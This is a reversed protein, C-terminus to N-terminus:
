MAGAKKLTEKMKSELHSIMEAKEETFATATATEVRPDIHQNSREGIALRYVLAAQPSFGAKAIEAYGSQKVRPGDKPISEKVAFGLMGLARSWGNKLSGVARLRKSILTKALSDIETNFLPKEGRKIRRANIIKYVIKVPKYSYKRRIRGKKDVKESVVTAGLDEQIKSKNGLPTHDRARKGVHLARSNIFLPLDRSSAAAANRLTETFERDDVKLSASM